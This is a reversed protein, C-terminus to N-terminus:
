SIMMCLYPLAYVPITRTLPYSKNYISMHCFKGGFHFEEEERGEEKSMRWEGSGRRRKGISSIM